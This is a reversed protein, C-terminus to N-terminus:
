SLSKKYFIFLSLREKWTLTQLLGFVLPRRESTIDLERVIARKDPLVEYLPDHLRKDVDVSM